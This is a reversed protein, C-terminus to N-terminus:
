ESGTSAMLRAQEIFKCRPLRGIWLLDPTPYISIGKAINQSIRSRKPRHPWFLSGDFIYFPAEQLSSVQYGTRIRIEKAYQIPVFHEDIWQNLKAETVKLTRAAERIGGLREIANYVDNSIPNIQPRGTAPNRVVCWPKSGVSELTTTISNYTSNM